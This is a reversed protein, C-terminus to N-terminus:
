KWGLNYRKMEYESLARGFNKAQNVTYNSYGGNVFKEATSKIKSDFKQLKKSNL